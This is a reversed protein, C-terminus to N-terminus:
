FHGVTEGVAEKVGGGDVRCDTQAERESASDMNKPERRTFYIRRGVPLRLNPKRWIAAAVSSMVVINVLVGVVTFLHM